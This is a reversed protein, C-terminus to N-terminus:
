LCQGPIKAIESIETKNLNQTLQTKFDRFPILNVIFLIQMRETKKKKQHIKSSLFSFLSPPPPAFHTLILVVMDYNVASFFGSTVVGGFNSM